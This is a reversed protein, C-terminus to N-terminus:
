WVENVVIDVGTLHDREKITVAHEPNGEYRGYLDGPAPSGGYGSRAGLYYTGPVPVPLRYRGDEGTVDSLFIPRNLLDPNDYLAAYVGRKPKGAPDLIRGEISSAAKYEGSYAPANRLKLSTASIVVPTYHGPTVSVPNAAYYGFRDGKRLPGAVGGGARKRAVLYYKGPPLDLLFGGDEGTPASAAFGLDRFATDTRLYAGVYASGVPAGGAIVRGSVGTGGQPATTPPEAEVFEELGIFLERFSGREAYVPNGGFYTFRDGRAIPREYNGDGRWQVVLFYRGAPLDFAANGGGDTMGLEAPSEKEEVPQRRWEVRAGAQPAERYTVRVAIGTGEGPGSKEPFNGAAPPHKLSCAPMALLLWCFLLIGASRDTRPITRPM